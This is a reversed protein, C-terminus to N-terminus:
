ALSYHGEAEIAEIVSGWNSIYFEEKKTDFLVTEDYSDGTNVYLLIADCYYRAWYGELRIAEVGFGNLVKNAVNLKRDILKHFSLKDSQAKVIREIRSKQHSTM